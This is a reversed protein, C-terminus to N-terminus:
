LVSFLTLLLGLITLIVEIIFKMRSKNRDKRINEGQEQIHQIYEAFGMKLAYEGERTLCVSDRKGIATKVLKERDIDTLANTVRESTFGIKQFEEKIDKPHAIGHKAIYTLIYDELSNM